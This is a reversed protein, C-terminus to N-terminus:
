PTNAKLWLGVTQYGARNGPLGLPSESVGVVMSEVVFLCGVLVTAARRSVILSEIGLAAIVVFAFSPLAYYWEYGGPVGLLSYGICYALAYAILPVVWRDLVWRRVLVALGVIVPLALVALWDIASASPIALLGRFFSVGLVGSRGQEVKALVTSPFIAGFRIQSYVLWPIVVAAAGTALAIPLRRKAVMFCVGLILALLAGDPRTLILAGLLFGSVRYHDTSFALLASAALLLYLSSEMGRTLFLMPSTCVLGAAVLGAVPHGAFRLGAFTVAATGALCAVFLVTTIAPLSGPGALFRGLALVLM